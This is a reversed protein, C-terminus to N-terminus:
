LLLSAGMSIALFYRLGGGRENGWCPGGVGRGRGMGRGMGMGHGRGHHDGVETPATLEKLSGQAIMSVAQEAPGDFAYLKAKGKALKFEYEGVDRMVLGEAGKDLIAKVGRVGRRLPVDVSLNPPRQVLLAPNTYDEVLRYGGGDVDYVCVKQARGPSDVYGDTCLVAVKM